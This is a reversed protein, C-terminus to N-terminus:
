NWNKSAVGMFIARTFFLTAPSLGQWVSRHPFERITSSVSDSSVENHFVEIGLNVIFTVREFDDLLDNSVTEIVLSYRLLKTVGDGLVPLFPRMDGGNSTFKLYLEM